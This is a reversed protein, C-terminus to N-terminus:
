TPEVGGGGGAGRRRLGGRIISRDRAGGDTASLRDAGSTSYFNAIVPLALPADQATTRLVFDWDAAQALRPDFRHASPSSHAFANMDIFNATRLLRRDFPVFHYQPLDSRRMGLVVEGGDVVRAGYFSGRGKSRTAAWALAKLWHPGMRNDDDLYAVISGGAADLARNRAAACGLHDGALLRVRDDGFTRVVDATGDLSGDDAVLLEWDDHEQAVVSEIATAITTARNRTPMVVSVLARQPPAQRIWATFPAIDDVAHRQRKRAVADALGLRGRDILKEAGVRRVTPMTVFRDRM